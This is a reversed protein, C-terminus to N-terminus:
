QSFVPSIETGALKLNGPIAALSQFWEAAKGTKRLRTM